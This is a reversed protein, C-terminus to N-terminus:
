PAVSIWAGRLLQPQASSRYDPVDHAPLAHHGITCRHAPEISWGFL